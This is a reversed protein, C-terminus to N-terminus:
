FKWKILSHLGKLLKVSGRMIMRPSQFWNWNSEISAFPLSKKRKKIAKERNRVRKKNKNKKSKRKKKNKNEEQLNKHVNHVSLCKEEAKQRFISINKRQKNLPLPLSIWIKDWCILRLSCLHPSFNWSLLSLSQKSVLLFSKKERLSFWSIRM